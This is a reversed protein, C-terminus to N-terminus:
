IIFTWYWKTPYCLIEELTENDLGGLYVKCTIVYKLFSKEEMKTTSSVVNKMNQQFAISLKLQIDYFCKCIRQCPLKQNKLWSKELPWSNGSKFRISDQLCAYWVTCWLRKWSNTSHTENNLRFCAYKFILQIEINREKTNSFHNIEEWRIHRNLTLQQPKYAIRSEFTWKYTLDNPPSFRCIEKNSLKTLCSNSLM